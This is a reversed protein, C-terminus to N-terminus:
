PHSAAQSSAAKPKAALSSNLQGPPERLQIMDATGTDIERMTLPDVQPSRIIHPTIMFVLEDSTVEHKQTTFLYKMFPIEGFGPWGSVTQSVEKKLLGALITSEGNKLRVIQQAKEQSIIPEEVGELDETGNESSVDVGLKLTVTHDLHIQPTMDINVGVDLYQFQTEAAASTSGTAYTYSGTAVPLREGLKLSAQEGNLARLRPNQLIQTNSDTLLFDAAAQGITISYASTHGIQELTQSSGSNVTLSTPPSLGIERMKDRSVEMVTVDVLVEPKPEDLSAILMKALRLEDPTGLMVITDNSEIGFIRASQFVNRLATQIGTFDSAQSVNGVYFVELAQNSYEKRKAPTNQAVFITNHTVPQWFTGSVKGVINLAQYPTVNSLDVQITNSSSSPDFLVNIGLLKGITLYIVKSDALMHLTVPGAVPIDLDVPSEPMNEASGSPATSAQTHTNQQLRLELARADSEAMENTPDADLAKLYAALAPALNGHTAFGQGEKVYEEAAATRVREFAIRYRIEGPKLESASKYARYAAIADNRAEAAQGIKYDRKASEALAPTLLMLLPVAALLVRIYVTVFAHRSYPVSYSRGTNVRLVERSGPIKYIFATILYKKAQPPPSNDSIRVSHSLSNVHSKQKGVHYVTPM